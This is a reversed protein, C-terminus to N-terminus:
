TIAIRFHAPPNQFYPCGLDSLQNPKVKIALTTFQVYLFYCGLRTGIPFPSPLHFTGQEEHSSPSCHEVQCPITLFLDSDFWGRELAGPGPRAGEKPIGM